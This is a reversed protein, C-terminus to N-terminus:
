IWNLYFQVLAAALDAQLGQELCWQEAHAAVEPWHQLLNKWAETMAAETNWVQWLARVAAQADPSLTRTYLVLFAELKDLHIDEDQRYIHWLMPRGAWQARVFSDEGRVANFDCCWLLRDYDEQRVFPLVQVTLSQRIQLSGVSLSADGLWRQVDGLIRGEPVLLHTQQTDLALADLWGGLSANEYAFLSILRSGAAPTVGLGQLFDLQVQRDAQFQRRRELLGAERLLGGTGAQFGPFFFYKQVGRFKVSPLGHCGSVWDEASLYDLNLWLPARQREAMAEMYAHPLQCAFAAIVVDAAVEDQWQAPWHRVEVGDQYQSHRQFDIEPCIKEFARLDDVWLRVTCQHEAVLQRALRWTVGIDGYNDVVSCFIDWSAKM